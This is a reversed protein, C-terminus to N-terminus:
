WTGNLSEKLSGDMINWTNTEHNYIILSQERSITTHPIIIDATSARGIKFEFKEQSAIILYKRKFEFLTNTNGVEIIIFPINPNLQSNNLTEDLSQNYQELQINNEVLSLMDSSLGLMEINSRKAQILCTMLKNTEEKDNFKNINYKNIYHVTIMFENGIGYIQNKCLKSYKGYKLKIYTGLISGCDRIYFQRKKPLYSFINIIIDRSIHPVNVNAGLRYNNMMLFSVWSDPLPDIKKFGESIDIKCHCRSISRDVQSLVIDNQVTGHEDRQLRGIKIISEEGTTPVKLSNKMGYPTIYYVSVIEQENNLQNLKSLTLKLAPKNKIDYEEIKQYISVDDKIKNKSWSKQSSSSYKSLKAGSERIVPLTIFNSNYNNNINILSHSHQFNNTNNGQSIQTFHNENNLQSPNARLLSYYDPDIQTFLNSYSTNNYNNNNEQHPAHDVEMDDEMESHQSFVQTYQNNMFYQNDM